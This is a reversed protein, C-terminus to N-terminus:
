KKGRKTGKKSGFSNGKKGGFSNGKQKGQFSKKGAKGSKNQDKGGKKKGQKSKRRADRSRMESQMMEKTPKSANVIPADSGVRSLIDLTRKKESSMDGVNSEFKRKRGMNKAPKEKPLQETFRGVSATSKKALTAARSIHDKDPKETPTLGIGPVKGKMNRALNRLRQLENKAINEKRKKQRKEFQDEYPDASQPVEIVWDRLEDEARKYGWRPRWEKVEDDWMMRGKKRKQIGKTNAYQQWKTAQKPKPIPKERPLRTKGAPLQATLVDQVRQVPLEWLKNILLQANGRALDKLYTDQHTRLNNLELPNSDTVLLNGEDVDVDIDKHVETTKYRSEKEAVSQLVNEVLDDM